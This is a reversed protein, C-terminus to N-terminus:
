PVAEADAGDAEDSAELVLKAGPWPAIKRGSGVTLPGHVCVRASMGSNRLAGAAIGAGGAVPDVEVEVLVGAM